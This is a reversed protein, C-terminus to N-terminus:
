AVDSFDQGWLLPVLNVVAQRFHTLAPAEPVAPSAALIGLHAVADQQDFVVGAKGLHDAVIQAPRAEADLTGAGARGPKAQM